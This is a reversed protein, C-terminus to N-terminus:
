SSSGNEFGNYMHSLKEFWHKLLSHIYILIKLLWSQYKLLYFLLITILFLTFGVYYLITQHLRADRL